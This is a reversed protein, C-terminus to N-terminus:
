ITVSEITSVWLNEDNGMEMFKSIVDFCTDSFGGLNLVDKSSQVQTSTNPTIDLLVLKAQPNNKKFVLWENAMGTGSAYNRNLAWSENDSVMLVLDGQKKNKNLYDLALACNTGGGGYNALHRANTMMSDMPNLKAQHIRTDFPIVEVNGPNRRMFSSAVLSAVDICRMKTTASGNYGTVPSGMSGSVDVLVYVKGNVKPINNLSYEAAQQLAVSLSVPVEGNVNLFATFLQYPFVGAKEVLERNSLKSALIDVLKSDKLVNHRALTNLNMRLQNWTMNQAISKWQADSLNLSTLMQFPVNPVNGSPAKKFTEYERVLQPLLEVNHQRDLLYGYLAARNANGPAPHALKLIDQLSPDNGIDAKFLQEDTLSNLYNEILKKPRTGLSKRGTVGSRIIQVFNRLMKPSDVILPFIRSLLQTNKSAVFAALVAPMDKMLGNQRAFVALKAVYEVPVKNCLQLVKTLQEKESVYFTSNFCGTMALQALAAKDTLTYAVGGAHNVTNTVPAVKKSVSASKFLKKNSM